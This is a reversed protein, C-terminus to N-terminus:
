APRARAGAIIRRGWRVVVGAFGRRGRASLAFVVAIRHNRVRVDRSGRAVTRGRIRSRWSVKVIGRVNAALTAFVSLRGGRISAALTTHGSKAAGTSGPAAGNRGGAPGTTPPTTGPTTTVAPPSSPAANHVTLPPSQVVATNGAANTVLLSVTQPGDHLLATNVQIAGSPQQPCPQAQSFDCAESQSSVVPGSPREVAVTSIGSPDSAAFTVPVTGSVVGGGWLPGGTASVTPSGAESITVRISYLDAQADHGTGGTGCVVAIGVPDCKVGFFLGTAGLGTETVAGQSNLSSCGFGGPPTRCADIPAGDSAFLGVELDLDGTYTALSRYTSVAAITTGPPAAFAWGAESGPPIRATSGVLDEGFLAGQETSQNLPGVAPGGCQNGQALGQPFTNLPQWAGPSSTPSCSSVVYSGAAFARSALAALCVVPAAAILLATTLPRM